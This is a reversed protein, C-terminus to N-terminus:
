LPEAPSKNHGKKKGKGNGSQGPDTGGTGQGDIQYPSPNPTKSGAQLQADFTTVFSDLQTDNVASQPHNTTVKLGLVGAISAVDGETLAKDLGLSPLSYGAGRLSAESEAPSAANLKKAHALRTYFGGVTADAAFAPALVAGATLVGLMTIAQVRKM